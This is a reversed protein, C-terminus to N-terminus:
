RPLLQWLLTALETNDHHGIFHEAGPGTAMVPVDVATHGGTTWGTHSRASVWQQISNRLAKRDARMEEWQAFQEAEPSVSAFQPWLTALAVDEEYATTLLWKLSHHVEKVRKPLWQYHGDRGLSLGGTSHDATVVVLTDGHQQAYAEALEIASAFEAMEAMACAIDNGHGCWDIQSGEVMLFFGPQPAWSQRLRQWWSDAPVPTLLTLAQELMRRLRDPRDDDIAYPMGKDAFLGLVPLKTLQPLDDLSDIYHYGQQRMQEGLGGPTMPFYRQGGGLILDLLPGGDAGNQQLFQPSIQDYDRRSDAHAVFSAPTAHTVQATVVLGTRMGRQKAATLLSDHPQKNRDQGIAGNYSKHGTALATAAAASDTVFTDDDPYTSASGVTLRDFVTRPVDNGPAGALYYRYATTYAPGMGDGIFYIINRPGDSAQASACLLLALWARRALQTLPM